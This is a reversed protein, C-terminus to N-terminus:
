VHRRTRVVDCGARSQNSVSSGLRESQDCGVEVASCPEGASGEGPSLGGGPRGVGRGQVVARTGLCESLACLFVGMGVCM